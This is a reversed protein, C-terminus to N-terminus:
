RQKIFVLTAGTYRTGAKEVVVVWDARVTAGFGNQSDVYSTVVLHGSDPAFTAESRSPFVATSPSKLSERVVDCAMRWAAGETLNTRGGPNGLLLFIGLAVALGAVIIGLITFFTKM